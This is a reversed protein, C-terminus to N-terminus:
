PRDSPSATAEPPRGPRAPPLQADPTVRRRDTMPGDSPAGDASANPTYPGLAAETPTRAAASVARPPTTRDAGVDHPGAGPILFGGVSFLAASLVTAAPLTLAWALGIKRVTAAQIGSRNAWM